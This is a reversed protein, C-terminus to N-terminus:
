CCIKLQCTSNAKLTDMASTFLQTLEFPAVNILIHLYASEKIESLMYAHMLM